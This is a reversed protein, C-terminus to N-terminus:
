TGFIAGRLEEKKTPEFRARMLPVILELNRFSLDDALALFEDFTILNTIIKEGADLHPETEKRCNRAIYTYVTWEIKGVPEDEKWLEWEDSVYGSEEILERKAAALPEEGSDLHGGPISLFPGLSDPQEQTQLMIKDGVVAIVQVTDPRKLREFTATSGDFMKQEWQWVEFIKGKFVMKADPPLPKTKSM